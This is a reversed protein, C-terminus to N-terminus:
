HASELRAGPHAALALLAEDHTNLPLEEYAQYHVKTLQLQPNAGPSVSSSVFELPVFTTADVLVTPDPLTQGNLTPLPTNPHVDLVWAAEGSSTTTRGALTMEGREYDERLLSVPTQETTEVGAPTSQTIVDPNAQSWMLAKVPATTLSSELTEGGVSIILRLRRPNQASWLQERTTDTQGGATNETLTTMHLVGSGPTIARYMDAAVNPTGGGPTGTLVFVAVAAAGGVLTVGLALEWRRRPPRARASPRGPPELLSDVTELRALLPAIPPAEPEQPVPNAHRLREIVDLKSM